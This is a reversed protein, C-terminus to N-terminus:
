LAQGEFLASLKVMWPQALNRIEKDDALIQKISALKQELERSNLPQTTAHQTIRRAYEACVAELETLKQWDGARAAELMKATTAAVAEYLLLVPHHNMSIGPIGNM